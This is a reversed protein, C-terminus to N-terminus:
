FPCARSINLPSWPRPSLSRTCTTTRGADSRAPQAGRHIKGFEGAGDLDAEIRRLEADYDRAVMQVFWLRAEITEWLALQREPNGFIPVTLDTRM